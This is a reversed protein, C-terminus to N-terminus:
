TSVSSQPPICDWPLLFLSFSLAFVQFPELKTILTASPKTELSTKLRPMPFEAERYLSDLSPLSFQDAPERRYGKEWQDIWEQLLFEVGGGGRHHLSYGGWAAEPFALAEPTWDSWHM